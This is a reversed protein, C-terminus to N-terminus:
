INIFISINPIKVWKLYLFILRECVWVFLFFLWVNKYRRSVFLKKWSNRFLSYIKLCNSTINENLYCITFVVNKSTTKVKKNWETKSYYLEILIMKNQERNDNVYGVCNVCTLLAFALLVFALLPTTRKM